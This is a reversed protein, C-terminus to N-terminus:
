NMSIRGLKGIANLIRDAQETTGLIAWHSLFLAEERFIRTAVPRRERLSTMTEKTRTLHVPPYPKNRLRAQPVLADPVLPANGADM